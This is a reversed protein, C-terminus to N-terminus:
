EKRKTAERTCISLSLDYYWNEKKNDVIQAHSPLILFFKALGLPKKITKGTDHVM